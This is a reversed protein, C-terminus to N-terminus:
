CPGNSRRVLLANWSSGTAVGYAVILEECRAVRAGVSALNRILDVDGLHGGKNFNDFFVKSAPVGLARTYKTWAFRSTNLPVFLSVDDVQLGNRHILKRMLNTGVEIVHQQNDPHMFGDISNIRGDTCAASDLIEFQGGSAGILMLGQGDGVFVAGGMLRRVSMGFFNSSLVIVSKASGSTILAKAIAIATFSGTCEQEINFTQANHMGSRHQLFYPVNICEDRAHLAWPDGRCVSDGRTYIIHTIETPDTAGAAFMKALMSEYIEAERPREGFFMTSMSEFSQLLQGKPVVKGLLKTSIKDLDTQSLALGALVSSLTITGTPSQFDLYRISATM